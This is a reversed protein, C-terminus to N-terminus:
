LDGGGGRNQRGGRGTRLSADSIVLRGPSAGLLCNRRCLAHQIASGRPCAESLPPSTCCSESFLGESVAHHASASSSRSCDRRCPALNAASGLSLGESVSRSACRLGLVVGRVRLSFRLPARPCGRQCSALLAASGLSLAESVFRSACRLGLVVGRVHLTNHLM